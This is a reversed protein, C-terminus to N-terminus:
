GRTATRCRPQGTYPAMFDKLLFPVGGFPGDTRDGAVISRAHDFWGMVVANINPNLAQIREIAAEVLEPASVQGSKVLLAQDVADMWRTEGALGSLVPEM